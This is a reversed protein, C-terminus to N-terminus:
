ELQLRHLVRWMHYAIFWDANLIDIKAMKSGKQWCSGVTACLM